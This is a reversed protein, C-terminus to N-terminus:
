ECVPRVGRALAANYRDLAVSMGAILDGMRNEPAPHTSLFQPPRAGQSKEEMNKWLTISARPDFGADAMYALGVEDAETEHKRSFPLTLGLQALVQAEQQMGVSAGLVAAAGQTVMGRNMQAVQHERTVHAIEHGIVAALQHQDAAVDLLGSFIGIKGGPMAFANADPMDFVEIEWARSAYPEEVVRLVSQAVCFIYAREVPDSSIPMQRRMQQFQQNAEVRITSESVCGAVALMMAFLVLKRM